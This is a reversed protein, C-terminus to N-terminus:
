AMCVEALPQMTVIFRGYGKDELEDHGCIPCVTASHDTGEYDEVAFTTICDTCEYLHMMLPLQQVMKAINSKVRHPWELPNRLREHYITTRISGYTSGLEKAIEELPKGDLFLKHLQERDIVPLEKPKTM